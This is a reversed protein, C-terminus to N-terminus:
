SLNRMLATYHTSQKQHISRFEAWRILKRTRVYTSIEVLLVTKIMTTWPAVMCHLKGFVKKQEDDNDKTPLYVNILTILGIETSLNVILIRGNRDQRKDIFVYDVEKPILIAVGCSNATGHSFFVSGAWEKQWQTESTQLSHTEQLLIISNHYRKIWSFVERRKSGNRLGRCNLTNIKLIKHNM